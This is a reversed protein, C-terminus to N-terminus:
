SPRRWTTIRQGMSMQLSRYLLRTIRRLTFIPRALAHLLVGGGTRSGYRRKLFERGPFFQRYLAPVKGLRRRLFLFQLLHGMDPIEPRGLIKLLFWRSLRNRRGELLERRVAPPVPLGGTGACAELATGLALAVEARRARRLVAEWDIKGSILRRIDERWMPRLHGHHFVSHVAIYILHDEPAPVRLRMGEWSVARARGILQRLDEGNLYDIQLHLDIKTFSRGRRLVHSHKGGPSRGFGLKGLAEGAAEVEGPRILLDVDALPRAALEGSYITSLLALGKLGLPEIGEEQLAEM